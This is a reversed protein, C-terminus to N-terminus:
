AFITSSGADTFARAAAARSAGSLHLLELIDDPSTVPHAGNRILYHPGTSLASFISGPVTMVDRNYDLALRATILTGSKREAEIILTAQSMGAM